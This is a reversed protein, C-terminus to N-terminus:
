SWGYEARVKAEYDGDSQALRERVRSESADDMVYRLEPRELEIIDALRAGAFEASLAQDQYPRNRAVALEALAKYEEARPPSVIANTGLRTKVAPPSVVSVKVGLGGVELRLTETYTELAAKSAAYTGSLPQSLRGAVSSVNVIRGSARQRMAPLYAQIMRLTGFVNIDFARRVLDLGIEEVPGSVAVGANNVLVDVPGTAVVCAQVSAEDTVDLALKREVSLGDLRGVDRATAIVAHGRSQLEEAAAWGIGSSCGTIIITAM